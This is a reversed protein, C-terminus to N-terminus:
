QIVVVRKRASGGGAAPVKFAGMVVGGNTPVDFSWTPNIAAATSQILYAAGLRIGNAFMQDPTSFGSNVTPAAPSGSGAAGSVLVYGDAAPTISGPQVDQTGTAAGTDTQLVSATLTGSFAYVAVNATGAATFTHGSGVTPNEVYQLCINSSGASYNTRPTWTNTKSDTVLSAACASSYYDSVVAVLLTAGTTDIAGTTGGNSQSAKDVLAAGYLQSALISVCLLKRM